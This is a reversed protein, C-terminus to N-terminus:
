PADPAGLALSFEGSRSFPVSSGGDLTAVGSVAYRVGPRADPALEALRRAIEATARLSAALDAHAALSATTEGRAPLRV